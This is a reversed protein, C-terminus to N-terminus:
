QVVRWFLKRPLSGFGDSSTRRVSCKDWSQDFSELSSRKRCTLLPVDVDDVLLLTAVFELVKFMDVSSRNQDLKHWAM